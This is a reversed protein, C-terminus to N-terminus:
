EFSRAWDVIKDVPANILWEVYITKDGKDRDSFIVDWYQNLEPTNSVRERALNVRELKKVVDRLRPIEADIIRILADYDNRDETMTKSRETFSLYKYGPSGGLKKRQSVPENRVNM